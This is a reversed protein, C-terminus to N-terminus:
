PSGKPPRPWRSELSRSVFHVVTASIAAAAAISAGSLLAHELGWAATSAAQAVAGLAGGAAARRM